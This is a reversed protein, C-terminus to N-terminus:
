LVMEMYDDMPSEYEALKAQEEIPGMDLRMDPRDIAM